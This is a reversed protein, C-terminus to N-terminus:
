IWLEGDRELILDLIVLAAAGNIAPIVRPVICPDHRGAVNIETEKMEHLDVTHQSIGISSTPKIATRFVIPMGNTIGGLIGGNNNTTTTIKNNTIIFEDNANNGTLKTIDFGAGFEIGKVAPISFIMHSLKSEVSDFFPGGYGAPVNVIYTEIVGGVSNNNEKAESIKEQMLKLKDSSLVPFNMKTLRNIENEHLNIGDDDSIDKISKIRSVIYIKKSQLIQMAIAGAFTLPATLRGSFHGGGRFDNFGKYKIFGTYDGHGPRIKSKIENYDKSNINENYILACLPTGTTKGQFYGSVISYKDEERRPTSLVSQGPARRKMHEDIYELNLEIGPPLGDIVIGAAEGHSEGFLSIKLKNGIISSM